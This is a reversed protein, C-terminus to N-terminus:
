VVARFRADCSRWLAILARRECDNASSSFASWNSLWTARDRIDTALIGAASSCAAMSSSYTELIPRRAQRDAAIPGPYDPTKISFGEITLFTAATKVPDEDGASPLSIGSVGPIFSGSPFIEEAVRFCSSGNIAPCFYACTAAERHLSPRAIAPILREALV